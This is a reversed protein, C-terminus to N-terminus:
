KYSYFYVLIFRVTDSICFNQQKKAKKLNERDFISFMLKLSKQIELRYYRLFSFGNMCLHTLTNVPIDSPFSVTGTIQQQQKKIIKDKIIYLQLLDYIQFKITNM